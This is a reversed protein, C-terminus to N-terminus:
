TFFFGFFGLLKSEYSVNSECLTALNSVECQKRVASTFSPKQPGVRNRRDSAAALHPFEEVDQVFLGSSKMLVILDMNEFSNKRCELM